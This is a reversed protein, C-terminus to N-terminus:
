QNQAPAQQTHQQFRQEHQQMMQTMKTKQEPTLIQYLESHIRARQVTLETMTQAQQSALERVKSEDFTDSMELQRLQQRTAAMQSFLPKLAPKEKAMVSKMQARQDDTLNLARAHFGMSGGFMGHGHMHTRKLTQSLAVGAALTVMLVAAAIKFHSPKVIERRDKM